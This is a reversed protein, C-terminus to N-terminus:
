TKGAGEAALAYAGLLVELQMYAFVGAFSWKHAEETSAGETSFRVECAMQAYVGAFPRVVAFRTALTKCAGVVQRLM